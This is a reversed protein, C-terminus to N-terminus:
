STRAACALPREGLVLGEQDRLGQKLAKGWDGLSKENLCEVSSLSVFELLDSM